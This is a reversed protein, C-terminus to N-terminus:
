RGRLWGMRAMHRRWGDRLDPVVPRPDAKPVPEVDRLRALAPPSERADEFVPAAPLSPGSAWWGYLVDGPCVTSGVDRHGVRRLGAFRRDAEAALELIAQKAVDPVPKRGDGVYAVGLSVSNEGRAHAGVRDWGRGEFVTGDPGILFNYGIDAWKREPGMHFAQIARVTSGDKYAGTTHHLVLM